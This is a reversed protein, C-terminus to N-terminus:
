SIGRYSIVCQRGHRFAERSLLRSGPMEREAQGARELDGGGAVLHREQAALAAVVRDGAQPDKVHASPGLAQHRVRRREGPGRMRLGLLLLSAPLPDALLGGADDREGAVGRVAQRRECQGPLHVHGAEPESGPPAGM